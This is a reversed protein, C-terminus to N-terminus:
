PSDGDGGSEAWFKLLLNRAAIRRMTASGRADSIPTFDTDVKQMAKEVTPRDWTRGQLFAETHTARKVHDAMGGYALIIEGIHNGNEFELRFGSSVTAIDVDRRKSVKYSRIITRPTVRPLVVGTILEDPHAATRRYGTVFDSAQVRREGRISQLLIQARHAILVPMLDGVPSATGLNGGITALNRIQLSGFVELMAAIAPFHRHCFESFNAISVGSAVTITDKEEAVGRLNEIGSLDLVLPLIEHNKTVRLAVDTAGQVALADPHLHKLELAERITAPRLYTQLETKLSVSEASIAKLLPIVSAPDRSPHEERGRGCALVAAEIIPKYGTCRCLNGALANSVETETPNRQNQYLAFLSMVIGPTCFGCQSGYTDVMARQVPHLQGTPSKLNEVTILQKGHLM